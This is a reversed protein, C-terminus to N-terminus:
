KQIFYNFLSGASIGILLDIPTFKIFILPIFFLLYNYSFKKPLINYIFTLSSIFLIFNNTLLLSIALPFGIFLYISLFMALLFGIIVGILLYLYSKTLTLITIVLLFLIIKEIIKFYKKGPKLEEKAIKQLLLNILFGSFVIIPILLKIM